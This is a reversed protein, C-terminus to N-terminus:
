RQLRASICKPWASAPKRWTVCILCGARREPRSARERGAPAARRCFRDLYAATVTLRRGSKRRFRSHNRDCQDPQGRGTRRQRAAGAYQRAQSKPSSVGWRSRPISAPTGAQPLGQGRLRQRGALHQQIARSGGRPNREPQRIPKDSFKSTPKFELRLEGEEVVLSEGLNRLLLAIFIQDPPSMSCRAKARARACPRSRAHNYRERDFRVWEIQMPLVYRTTVTASPLRLSRWGPRNDGIDCFPIASTLIPQIANPSREPYWRTRALHGPLVDREFM